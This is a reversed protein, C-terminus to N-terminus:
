GHTAEMEKSQKELADLVYDVVYTLGEEFEGSAPLRCHFESVFSLVAACSDLTDRVDPGILGNSAQVDDSNNFRWATTVPAPHDTVTHNKVAKM